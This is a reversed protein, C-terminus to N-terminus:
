GDRDDGEQKEALGVGGQLIIVLPNVRLSLSFITYIGQPSFPRVSALSPPGRPDAPFIRWPIRGGPM